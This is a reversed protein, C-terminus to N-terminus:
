FVKPIKKKKKKKAKMKRVKAEKKIWFTYHLTVIINMLINVDASQSQSYIM